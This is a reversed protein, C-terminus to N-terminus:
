AVINTTGFYLKLITQPHEGGEPSFQWLQVFLKTKCIVRLRTDPFSGGGWGGGGGPFSGGSFQGRLFSGGPFRGGPFSGGGGVFVAGLFDAGWLPNITCISKEHM